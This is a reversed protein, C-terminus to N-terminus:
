KSAVEGKEESYENRFKEYTMYTFSILMLVISVPGIGYIWTYPIMLIPTRRGTRSLVELYSFCHLFFYIMIGYFLVFIVMEMMRQMKKPLLDVLIEIAVHSKTHFAIPAALYSIWVMCALQFEEEWTFPNSFCYRMIVGFFTSGILLVLIFSALLTEVKVLVDLVKKM